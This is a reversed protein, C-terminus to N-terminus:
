PVRKPSAVRHFSFGRDGYFLEELGRSWRLEAGWFESFVDAERLREDLLDKWDRRTM